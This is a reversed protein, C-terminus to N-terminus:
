QRQEAGHLPRGPEDEIQGMRETVSETGGGITFRCDEVNGRMGCWNLGAGGGRGKVIGPLRIGDEVKIEWFPQKFVIKERGSRYM